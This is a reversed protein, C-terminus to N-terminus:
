KLTLYVFIFIQIYVYKDLDIRPLSLFQKKHQQRNRKIAEKDDFDDESNEEDHDSTDNTEKNEEFKAELSTTKSKKFPFAKRLKRVVSNM